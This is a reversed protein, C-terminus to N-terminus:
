VIIKNEMMRDMNRRRVVCCDEKDEECCENDKKQVKNDCDGQDCCQEQECCSDSPACCDSPPTSGTSASVTLEFVQFFDGLVRSVYKSPSFIM